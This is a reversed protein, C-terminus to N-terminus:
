SFRFVKVYLRGDNDRLEDAEAQRIWQPLDTIVQPEISEGMEVLAYSYFEKVQDKHVLYIHSPNEMWSFYFFENM